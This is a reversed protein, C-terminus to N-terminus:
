EPRSLEASQLVGFLMLNAPRQLRAAPFAFTFAFSGPVLLGGAAAPPSSPSSKMFMDALLAAASSM